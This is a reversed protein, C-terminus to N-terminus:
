KITKLVSTRRHTNYIYLVFYFTTFTNRYLSVLVSWLVGGHCDPRERYRRRALHGDRERIGDDGRGDGQEEFTWWVCDVIELYDDSM